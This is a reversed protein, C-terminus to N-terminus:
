IKLAKELVEEVPKGLLEIAKSLSVLDKALANYVLCEFRGSHEVGIRSQEVYNKYAENSKKRFHASFRSDNLVGMEHLKYIIADVSIGFQKQLEILEQMSLVKNGSDGLRKRVVSEPLLVENAFQNCLKEVAKDEVGEAINLVLHGLEHLATFRKRETREDKKVVVIPMEGAWGSLGSFKEKEEIEIVRVHREELMPLLCAIGDEGLRWEKRLTKAVEKADDLSSVLRGFPTKDFQEDLGLVDEIDAYREIADVVQMEIAKQRKVGLTSQKRFAFGEVQVGAPRIFAGTDVGLVEALRILVASDPSMKGNEYKYIAQPTILGDMRKALEAQSLGKMERLAKLRKAFLQKEDENM